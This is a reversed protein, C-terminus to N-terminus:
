IHKLLYRSYLVNMYVHLYEVILASLVLSPSCYCYHCSSEAGVDAPRKANTIKVLKDTKNNM